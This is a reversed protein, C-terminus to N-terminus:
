TLIVLKKHSTVIDSYKSIPQHPNLSIIIHQIQSRQEEEKCKIPKKSTKIKSESFQPLENRRFTLPNNYTPNSIATSGGQM